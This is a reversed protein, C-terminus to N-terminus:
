RCRPPLQGESRVVAARKVEIANLGREGYLVFDVEAGRGARGAPM